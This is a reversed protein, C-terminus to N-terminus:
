KFLTNLVVIGNIERLLQTNSYHEIFKKYYESCGVIIEIEDYEFQLDGEIRWEREHTWDVIQTSDKLDLQVCRWQESQPIEDLEERKGYIVPRAGKQFMHGKNFRIGFAEYRFDAKNQYSQKENSCEEEYRINEAMAYLPVDQFCVAKCNKRIYGEAGSGLIIKEDLIKCLVEFASKDDTRKTLHTIRSAFDSRRSIHDIWQEENM